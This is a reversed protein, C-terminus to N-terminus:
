LASVALSGYVNVFALFEYIEPNQLLALVLNAIQEYDVSYHLYPCSALPQGSVRPVFTRIGRSPDLCEADPEQEGECSSEERHGTPLDQCRAGHHSTADPINSGFHM